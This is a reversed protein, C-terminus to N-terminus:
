KGKHRIVYEVWYVGRQLPDDPQDTYISSLQKVNKAYVPNSLIENIGTLLVEESVTNWDLEVIFGHDKALKANLM